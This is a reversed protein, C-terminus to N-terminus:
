IWKYKSGKNLLSSRNLYRNLVIKNIDKVSLLKPKSNKIIKVSRTPRISKTKLSSQTSRARCFLPANRSEYISMYDLSVVSEVDNCDSIRKPKVLNATIM